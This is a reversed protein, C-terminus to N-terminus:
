YSQSVRVLAAGYDRQIKPENVWSFAFPPENTAAFPLILFEDFDPAILTRLRHEVEAAEQIPHKHRGTGTTRWLREGEYSVYKDAHNVGVIGITIPRGRKSRFHGLQGRLDNMVRDIQRIMAKQVIKVEIGIEITAIPGRKVTFGDVERPVEHPVIEGFSGDGRRALVGQRTNQVNLVALGRNVRDLFGASRGLDYLDEFLEIAM